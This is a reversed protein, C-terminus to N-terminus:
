SGATRRLLVVEHQPHEVRRHQQLDIRHAPEDAAVLSV